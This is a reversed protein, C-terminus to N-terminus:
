VFFGVAFNLATCLLVGLATPIIAALIAYRLKGTERKVTLLTTSCPFHCLSFIIVSVATMADWGNAILLERTASLSLEAMSGDAAYAMLAIPMVIENAPIGLIFAALVTGDMGLLRGAPDLFDTIPIIQAMTCEQKAAKHPM